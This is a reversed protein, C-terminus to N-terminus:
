RPDVRIEDDGTFILRWCSLWTECMEISVERSHLESKIFTKLYKVVIIVVIIIIIM